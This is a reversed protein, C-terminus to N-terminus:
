LLEMPLPRSRLKVLFFERMDVVTMIGTHRNKVFKVGEDTELWIRDSNYSVRNSRTSPVIFSSYFYKHGDFIPYLSLFRDNFEYYKM